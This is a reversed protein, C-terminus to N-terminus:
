NVSKFALMLCSILSLHALKMKERSAKLDGEIFFSRLISRAQSRAIKKILTEKEEPGLPCNGDKLNEMEMVTYSFVVSSNERIHKSEQEEHIRCWVIGMPLLLVNHTKSLKHWLESDGIMWKGSFGGVAKFVDTKIICSTPAKHFTPMSFYHRFYAERPTLLIPFPRVPDQELSDLGYAADPYQEMYDVVVKLGWPYITDDADIYKIYKGKAYSAAKNRNSYDGLNTANVFVKIRHDRQEYGRAIEATRDKSVDDVIILEFHTHTSALVSEIAEAIYKERNYATMLVSVLPEM